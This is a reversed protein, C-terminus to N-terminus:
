LIEIEVEEYYVQGFDNKGSLVAIPAYVLAAIFKVPKLLEKAIFKM